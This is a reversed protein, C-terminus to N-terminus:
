SLRGHFLQFYSENHENKLDVTWFHDSGFRIDLDAAYRSAERAAHEYGGYIDAVELKWGEGAILFRQEIKYHKIDM